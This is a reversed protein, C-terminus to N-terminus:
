GPTMNRLITSRLTGTMDPWYLIMFDSNYISQQEADPPDTCYRNHAAAFQWPDTDGNFYKRNLALLICDRHRANVAYFSFRIASYAAYNMEKKPEHSWAPFFATTFALLNMVLLKM